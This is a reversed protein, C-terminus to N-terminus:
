GGGGGLRDRLKDKLKDKAQDKVGALKANLMQEINGEMSEAASDQQNLMSLWESQGGLQQQLKTDLKSRLDSQLAAIKAKAEGMVADALLKDLPSRISVDPASILGTANLNLPIEAQQNLLTALQQIYKNDSANFEPQQLVLQAQQKVQNNVLNLKGTTSLKASALQLLTEGRGIDMSDVNIGQLQWNVNTVMQELVAFDGDLKLLSLQPLGTVQANFRTAANIIDHQATIDRLEILAEGGGILWNVRANKIWFDPYPQSPLPLIRNPMVIEPDPVEDSNPLNAPIYPKALRYVAELQGIREGWFDGLLIQSIPALGGEGINALDQLKKWDSSSAERVASVAQQLQQRSQSLQQQVAKLKDREARLTDQLEKLEAAKSALDAPNEIKSDTLAKIQAQIQELKAKDPLQSQLDKLVQQQNKALQQLEEGRAVTKLDARALLEDANPLDLLLLQQLDVKDAPDANPGRFVKGPSSRETGYALGDVSLDDIVYYGLLAPWVEIAAKANAFSITNHSPKANDTIQLESINLAIPALSVSVNSINVEAGAAKELTYVMGLRIATGLFLYVLALIAALMALFILWGSKRIM